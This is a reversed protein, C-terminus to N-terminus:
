SEEPDKVMTVHEIGAEMFLESAARYGHKEYFPMAHTQGNLKFRRAGLEMGAQELAGVVVSGLGGGRYEPLVCIRELKAYGDVLRVRGAAAPKGDVRVLVHSAEEEHEDLEEEAPVRQEEVFVKMRIRCAEEMDEKTTIRVVETM